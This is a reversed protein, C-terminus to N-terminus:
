ISSLLGMTFIKRNTWPRSSFDKMVSPLNLIIGLLLCDTIKADLNLRSRLARLSRNEMMFEKM